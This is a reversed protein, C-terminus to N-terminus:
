QGWMCDTNMNRARAWLPLPMFILKLPPTVWLASEEVHLSHDILQSFSRNMAQSIILNFNQKLFRCSLTPDSVLAPLHAGEHTCCHVTLDGPGQFSNISLHLNCNYHCEMCTVSINSLIWTMELTIVHWLTLPEGNNWLVIMLAEEHTLCRSQKFGASSHVVSCEGLSLTYCELLGLDKAFSTHAELRMQYVTVHGKWWFM